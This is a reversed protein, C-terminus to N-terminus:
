VILIYLNKTLNLIRVPTPFQYNPIKNKGKPTKEHHAISKALGEDAGHKNRNRQTESLM